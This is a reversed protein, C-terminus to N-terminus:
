AATKHGASSLPTHQGAPAAWHAFPAAWQWVIDGMSSHSGEDRQLAPHAGQPLAGLGGHDPQAQPCAQVEEEKFCDLGHKLRLLCVAAHAQACDPGHDCTPPHCLPSPIGAPHANASKALLQLPLPLPLLRPM